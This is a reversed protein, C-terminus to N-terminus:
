NKAQAVADRFAPDAALNRLNATLAQNLITPVGGSITNETAFSGQHSSKYVVRENSSSFLEWTVEVFANGKVVNPMGIDLSARGTYPHCTNVVVKTVTGGLVLALPAAREFVSNPASRFNYGLPELVAQLALQVDGRSFPVADSALRRQSAPECFWGYQISINAASPDLRAALPGLGMEQVTSGSVIPLPTGLPARIPAPVACATLLASILPLAGLGVARRNRTASRTM